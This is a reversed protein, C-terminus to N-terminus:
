ESQHCIMCNYSNFIMRKHVSHQHNKFDRPSFSTGFAATNTELNNLREELIYAFPWSDYSDMLQANQYIIKAQALQGSKVLFDGFNLYYGEVNHPAKASNWVALKLRLNQEEGQLALYPALSPQQRDVSSHYAIDMSKFYGEIADQYHKNTPVANSMLYGISFYNFEPYRKIAELGDFYARRKDKEDNHVAAEAIRAGALWGDIRHDDPSLKKAEEFYKIALTLDDTINPDTTTNLRFRESIRWLHSHAIDLALEPDNPNALYAAKLATLVQSIRDYQGSLFVEWFLDVADERAPSLEYKATKEPATKVGIYSECSLLFLSALLCILRIFVPM